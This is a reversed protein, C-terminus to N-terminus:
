QVHRLNGVRRLVEFRQGLLWLISGFGDPCDALLQAALQDTEVVAEALIVADGATVRASVPEPVM